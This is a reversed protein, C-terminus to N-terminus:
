FTRHEVSLERPAESAVDRQHAWTHNGYQQVLAAGRRGAVTQYWWNGLLGHSRGLLPSVERGCRGVVITVNGLPHGVAFVLVM